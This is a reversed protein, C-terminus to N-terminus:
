LNSWAKEFPNNRGQYFANAIKGATPKVMYEIFGRCKKALEHDLGVIADGKGPSEANFEDRLKLVLDPFYDVRAVQGGLDALQVALGIIRAEKKQETNMGDLMALLDKKRKQDYPFYTYQIGIEALIKMRESDLFNPLTLRDISEKVFRMSEEVHIPLRAAFNVNLDDTTVYGIDHNMAGLVTAIAGEKTIHSSLYDKRDILVSMISIADYTTQYVAHHKNHYTLNTDKEFMNETQIFYAATSRFIESQEVRTLDLKKLLRKFQKAISFRALSPKVSNDFPYYGAEINIM